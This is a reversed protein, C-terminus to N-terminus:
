KLLIGGDISGPEGNLTHMSLVNIFLISPKLYFFLLSLYSRSIYNIFKIIFSVVSKKYIIYIYSM